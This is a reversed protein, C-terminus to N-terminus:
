QFSDSKLKHHANICIFINVSAQEIGAGVYLFLISFLFHEKIWGNGTLSPFTSTYEM